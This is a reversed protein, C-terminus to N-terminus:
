SGSLIFLGIWNSGARMRESFKGTGFFKNESKLLMNCLHYLALSKTRAGGAPTKQLVNNILREGVPKLGSPAPSRLQAKQEDVRWM